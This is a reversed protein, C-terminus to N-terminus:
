QVVRLSPNARPDNTFPTALNGLPGSDYCITVANFYWTHAKWSDSMANQLLTPTVGDGDEDADTHRIEIQRPSTNEDLTSSTIVYEPGIHKYGLSKPPLSPVPDGVHV